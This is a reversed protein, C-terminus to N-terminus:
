RFIAGIASVYSAANSDDSWELKINFAKLSLSIVNVGLSELSYIRKEPFHCELNGSEGACPSCVLCAGSGAIINGTDRDKLLENVLLNRVVSFAAHYADRVPASALKELPVRFCIVDAKKADAVYDPFYPSHPPCSLNVTHNQCGECDKKIKLDFEFAGIDFRNEFREIQYSIGSADTHEFERIEM